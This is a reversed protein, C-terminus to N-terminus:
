CTVLPLTSLNFSSKCIMRSTSLQCDRYTAWLYLVFVGYRATSPELPLFYCCTKIVSVIVSLDHLYKENIMCNFNSWLNRKNEKEYFTFKRYKNWMRKVSLRCTLMTHNRCIWSVCGSYKLASVVFWNQTEHTSSHGPRTFKSTASSNRVLHCM